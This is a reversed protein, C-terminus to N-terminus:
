GSRPASGSASSPRRSGKPSASGDSGSASVRRASRRRRGRRPCRFFDVPASTTVVKRVTSRYFIVTYSKRLFHVLEEPRGRAVKRKVGEGRLRLDWPRPSAGCPRSTRSTRRSGCRRLGRPGALPPCTGGSPLSSRKGWGQQPDPPRGTGSLDSALNIQMAKLLAPKPAVGTVNRFWTYLVGGAAAALPASFSTGRSWLHREGVPSAPDILAGIPANTGGAEARCATMERTRPSEIGTAPAVIDPKIRGDAYTPGVQSYAWIQNGNDAYIGGTAPPNLSPQTYPSTNFNESGGVTIVNKATAPTSVLLQTGGNEVNGGSFYIAMPAGGNAGTANRVLRDHLQSEATYFANGPSNYSNSVIGVGLNLLDQYIVGRDQPDFVPGTSPLMNWIRGVVLPSEPLIGLGMLFDDEAGASAGVDRTSTAAPIGANGSILGAVMTGHAYCDADSGATNTYRRVTIFSANSSNRFDRHVDTSSGLDFGTDLIALRAATRYNGVGKGIIWQRHDGQVPSLVGGVNSVLSDGITLHTERQGSPEPPTYADLWLVAPLSALQSVAPADIRVRHITRDGSREPLRLQQLSRSGLLALAESAEPVDAILIEVDILVDRAARLAPSVKHFPQHLRFLQVPLRSVLRSLAIQDGLVVYGNQPIYNLITVSESELAELWEKRPFTAFQLIFADRVPSPLPTDRRWEIPIEPAVKRADLPLDLFQLIDLEDRIEVLDAIDRLISPSASANPLPLQLLLFNDQDDVIRAGVSDLRQRPLPLRESGGELAAPRRRAFVKVTGPEAIWDAVLARPSNALVLVLVYLARPFCPILARM